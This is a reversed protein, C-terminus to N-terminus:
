SSSIRSGPALEVNPELGVGILGFWGWGGLCGGAVDPGFSLSYGVLFWQIPVIGLLIFAQQFASLVNKRRVMGGYFLGLAPTMLLAVAACAMVMVADATREAPMDAAITVPLAPAPAIAPPAMPRNPQMRGVAVASFGRRDFRRRHHSVGSGAAEM